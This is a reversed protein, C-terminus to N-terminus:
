RVVNKEKVQSINPKEPHRKFWEDLAKDIVSDREQPTVENSFYKSIVKHSIKIKKPPTKVKAVILEDIKKETLKGNQSIGKLKRALALPVGFYEERELNSFLWKQEQKKLYSLEVAPIFALKREDVKDLLEPILHTLRIYRYLTDRSENNMNAISTDNRLKTAVQSLTLDTRKGQSKLADLKYKYAWAKESPLVTERQLNSDVMIITATDDDLERVDCPVIDLGALKSAEVRNHGSVIEYKGSDLPRVLVPVIVGREVISDALEQMKEANHKKFPHKSFPQLESLPLTSIGNKGNQERQQSSKFIDDFDKLKANAM